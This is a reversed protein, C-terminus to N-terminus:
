GKTRRRQDWAEQCTVFASRFEAVANVPLARKPIVYAYGGGVALFLHGPAELLGEIADWDHM